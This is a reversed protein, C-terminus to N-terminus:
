NWENRMEKQLALADKNFKVSGFCKSLDKSEKHSAIQNYRQNYRYLVFQIYNEIEPLCEKPVSKIQDFMAEYSM